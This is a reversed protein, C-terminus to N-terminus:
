SAGINGKAEAGAEALAVTQTHGSFCFPTALKVVALDNVQPKGTYNPHLTIKSATSLQETTEEKKLLSTKGAVFVYFGLDTSRPVCHAATIVTDSNYLAGGCVLGLSKAMVAVQYPVESAKAPRGGVIRESLYSM